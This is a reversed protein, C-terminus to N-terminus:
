EKHQASPQDEATATKLTTMSQLLISTCVLISGIVSFLEPMKGVWVIQVLYCLAISSMQILVSLSPTTLKSAPIILFAYLVYISGGFIALFRMSTTICSFSVGKHVMIPIPWIICGLSFSLVILSNDIKPWNRLLIFFLAGFIGCVATLSLGFIHNVDLGHKFSTENFCFFVLGSIGLITTILTTWRPVMKLIVAELLISTLFMVIYSVAASDGMTIYDLSLLYLYNYLGANIIGNALIKILEVTKPRDNKGCASYVAAGSLIGVFGTSVTSMDGGIQSKQIAGSCVAVAIASFASLLIGLLNQKKTTRRLVSPENSRNQLELDM